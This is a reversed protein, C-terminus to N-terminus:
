EQAATASTSRGYQLKHKSQNIGKFLGSILEKKPIKNPLYYEV